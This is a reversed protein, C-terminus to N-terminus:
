PKVVPKNAAADLAAAQAKLDADQADISEKEAVSIKGDNAHSNFNDTMTQLAAAADAAKKQFFGAVASILTMLAAFNATIFAFVGAVTM